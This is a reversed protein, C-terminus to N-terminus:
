QIRVVIGKERNRLILNGGITPSEISCILSLRAINTKPSSESWNNILQLVLIFSNLEALTHHRSGYWPYRDFTFYFRARRKSILATTVLIGMILWDIWM